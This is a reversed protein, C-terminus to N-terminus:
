MSRSIIAKEEQLHNLSNQSSRIMYNIQELKDKIQELYYSNMTDYQRMFEEAQMISIDIENVTNCHFNERVKRKLLELQENLSDRTSQAIRLDLEIRTKSIDLESEKLDLLHVENLKDKEFETRQLKDKKEFERLKDKEHRIRKRNLFPHKSLKALYSDIEDIAQKCVIHEKDNDYLAAMVQKKKEKLANLQSAVENLENQLKKEKSTVIEIDDVLNTYDEKILNAYDKNLDIFSYHEYQEQMKTREQLEKLLEDYQIQFRKLEEKEHEEKANMSVIMKSVIIKSITYFNISKSKNIEEMMEDTVEVRSVLDVFESLGEYMSNLKDKYPYLEKLKNLVFAKAKGSLIYEINYNVNKGLIYKIQEGDYMGSFLDAPHTDFISLLKDNKKFLIEIETEDYQSKEKLKEYEEFFYDYRSLMDKHITYTHKTFQQQLNNLLDLKMKDLKSGQKRKMIDFSHIKLHPFSEQLQQACRYNRNLSKSGDTFCFIGIPEFGDFVVESYVKEEKGNEVNEHKLKLCEDVLRQPHDIKKIVSYSLLMDEDQVYNNVSMDQSKAGVIKKPDLIFGYGLRYTDTLDQNFLSGSVYNSRFKEDFKTSATSHGLFAFHNDTMSDIDEFYKEWEKLIAQQVSDLMECMRKTDKAQIAKDYEMSFWSIMADDVFYKMNALCDNKANILDHMLYFNKKEINIQYIISLLEGLTCEDMFLLDDERKEKPFLENYKKSLDYILDTNYNIENDKSPLFDIHIASKRVISEMKEYFSRIDMETEMQTKSVSYIEDGRTLYKMKGLVQPSVKVKREDYLIKIEEFM